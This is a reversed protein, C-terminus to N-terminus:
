GNVSLPAGSFNQQTHKYGHNSREWAREEREREQKKEKEKEKERLLIPSLM